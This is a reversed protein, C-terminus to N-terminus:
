GKKERAKDVVGLIIVVLGIAVLAIDIYIITFKFKDVFSYFTWASGWRQKCFSENLLFCSFLTVWELVFTVFAVGISVSGGVIMKTSLKM